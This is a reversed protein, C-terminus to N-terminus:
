WVLCSCDRMDHMNFAATTLIDLTWSTQLARDEADQQLMTIGWRYSELKRILRKTLHQLM